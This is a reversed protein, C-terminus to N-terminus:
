IRDLLVLQLNDRVKAELTLKEDFRSGAYLYFYDANIKAKDACYILWEYDDYTLMPKDYVCVAIINKGDEAEAVIDITGPKGVWMGFKEIRFPLKNRDNLRM